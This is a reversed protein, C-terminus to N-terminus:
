ENLLQKMAGLPHLNRSSDTKEENEAPLCVFADYIAYNFSETYHIISCSNQVSMCQQM